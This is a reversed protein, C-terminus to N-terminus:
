NILKRKSKLFTFRLGVLLLKAPSLAQPLGLIAPLVAGEGVVGLPVEDLLRNGGWVIRAPKRARRRCFALEQTKAKLDYIKVIHM